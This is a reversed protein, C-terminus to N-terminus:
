WGAFAVICVAVATGSAIFDTWGPHFVPCLTGGKRYGRIALLEGTDRARMLATQTLFTGAAPLRSPTLRFGKIAWATRMRELDAFLSSFAQLSLEAVLGLDFGYRNGLAWVAFNLMEGPRYESWIWAAVLMVACMRIGYSVGTGQLVQLVVAVVFILSLSGIVFSRKPVAAFRRTFLLWWLITLFAGMLSVFATVSLIAATVTRIRIDNM